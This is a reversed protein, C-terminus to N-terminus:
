TRKWADAQFRRDLAILLPRPMSVILDANEFEARKLAALLTNYGCRLAIKTKYKGDFPRYTMMIKNLKRTEDPTYVALTKELWAFWKLTMEKDDAAVGESSADSNPLAEKAILAVPSNRIHQRLSSARSRMELPIKNLQQVNIQRRMLPVLLADIMEGFRTGYGNDNTQDIEPDKLPLLMKLNPDQMLRQWVLVEAMYPQGLLMMALQVTAPVKHDNMLQRRELVHRILGAIDDCGAYFDHWFHKFDAIDQQSQWCAFITSKGREEKSKASTEQIVQSLHNMSLNSWPMFGYFTTHVSPFDPHMMPKSRALDLWQTEMVDLRSPKANAKVLKLTSWMTASHPSKPSATSFSRAIIM